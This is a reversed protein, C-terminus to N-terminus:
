SFSPMLLCVTSIRASCTSNRVRGLLPAVAFVPEATLSFTFVKCSTSSSRSSPIGKQDLLSNFHFIFFELLRHSLRSAALHAVETQFLGCADIVLVNGLQALVDGFLALNQGSSHCAYTCSVLSFKGNSDLACSLHSQKGVYCVLFALIDFLSRGFPRDNKKTAIKVTSRNFKRKLRVILLSTKVSQISDTRRIAPMAGYISIQAKVYM